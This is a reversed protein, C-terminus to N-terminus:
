RAANRAGRRRARRGAQLPEVPAGDLTAGMDAGALAIVTEEPFRLTVGKVLMELGAAGPPLRSLPPPTLANGVLLNAIALSYFDQAGAPPIGRSLYGPRGGDQITTQLGGDLVEIM